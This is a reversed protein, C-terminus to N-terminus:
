VQKVKNAVFIISFQCAGSLFCSHGCANNEYAGCEDILSFKM